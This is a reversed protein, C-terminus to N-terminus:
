SRRLANLRPSQDLPIVSSFQCAATCLPFQTYYRISQTNVWVPDQTLWDLAADREAPKKICCVSMGM